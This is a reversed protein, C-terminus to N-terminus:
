FVYVCTTIEFIRSTDSIKLPQFTGDGYWIQLKVGIGSKELGWASKNVGRGSNIGEVMKVFTSGKDGGVGGVVKTSGGVMEWWNHGEVM